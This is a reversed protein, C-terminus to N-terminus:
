NFFYLYTRRTKKKKIKKTNDAIDRLCKLKSECQILTASQFNHNKNQM